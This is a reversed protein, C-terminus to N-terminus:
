PTKVRGSIALRLLLIKCCNFCSPLYPYFVQNRQSNAILRLPISASARLLAEAGTNLTRLLAEAGTNLTRLLAEAGTNLTRLLAEAGM